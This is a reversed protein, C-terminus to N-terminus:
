FNFGELGPIVPVIGDTIMILGAEQLTRNADPGYSGSKFFASQDERMGDRARWAVKHISSFIWDNSNICALFLFYVM